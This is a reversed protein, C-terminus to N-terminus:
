AAEVPPGEQRPAIRRREEVTERIAAVDAIDWVRRGSGDIRAAPPVLGNREWLRVTSPAANLKRALSGIGILRNAQDTM